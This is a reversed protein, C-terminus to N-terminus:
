TIEPNYRSIHRVAEKVNVTCDTTMMENLAVNVETIDDNYFRGILLL